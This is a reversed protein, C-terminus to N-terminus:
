FIAEQLTTKGALNILKTKALKQVERATERDSKGGMVIIRASFKENLNDAVEAFREPFWKKAPGYTAGPAIGIITKGTEEPV